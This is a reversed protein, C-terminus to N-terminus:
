LRKLYIDFSVSVNATGSATKAMWGIDTRAPFVGIPSDAYLPNIGGIFEFSQKAQMPTYPSSVDDASERAFFYGSIVKTSEVSVYRPYVYAEFGDPVTYCGILSQGLGFGADVVLQAYVTVGGAVRVTITGAHSSATASSYTGSEKVRIRYIRMWTGTIAVAALGNMSVDVSVENWNADLGTVTVKRAGSGASTDNASNSLIELSQATTPVQYVGGAAIPTLTTTLAFIKGFKQVHVWNPAEGSEINLFTDHIYTKRLDRM